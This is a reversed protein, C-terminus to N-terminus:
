NCGASRMARIAAAAGPRAWARRTTSSTCCSTGSSTVSPNALWDFRTPWRPDRRQVRLTGAVDARRHARPACEEPRGRARYRVGRERPLAGAARRRGALALARPLLPRRAAAAPRRRAGLVSSVAGGAGRAAGTVPADSARRCSRVFLDRLAVTTRRSDFRECIRARAAAGPPAAAGPRHARPAAGRGARADRPERAPRARRRRDDRPHRLDRTSVVPVGM